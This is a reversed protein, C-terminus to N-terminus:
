KLEFDDSGAFFGKNYIEVKYKGSQFPINPNWVFCLQTEDNAYDYEQVQTFRVEQGNKDVTTGSGLDDIALTEGKPSIVRIYFKEKGPQVVDNAITTFCIKLQDVRKASEKESTKGSKRVKMGTVKIGKVKIVSGATVSKTLEERESVLQAKATSLSENEVLKSNLTYSLSDKDARLMLNDQTLQEQESRLQEVQAIYEAVRAKLGSIERRAADLKKKDRLLLGIQNKQAELEAKQQDILANIQENDGKLADLEAIAQNYQGELEAKLKEAEELEAVKQELQRTTSMSEYTLWAAVGLLLLGAVIAIPLWPNPKNKPLPQPAVPPTPPTTPTPGQQGPQNSPNVPVM